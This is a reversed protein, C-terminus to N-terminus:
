ASKTLSAAYDHIAQECDDGPCPLTEELMVPTRERYRVTDAIVREGKWEQFAKMDEETVLFGRVNFPYGDAGTMTLAVTTHVPDMEIKVSSVCNARDEGAISIKAERPTGTSIIEVFDGTKPM